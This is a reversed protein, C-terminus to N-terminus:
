AHFRFGRPRTFGPLAVGDIDAFAELAFGGTTRVGTALRSVGNEIVGAAVRGGVRVQAVLADPLHEVAGDVVLVDYPAHDAAGTALDGEVVTVNGIGDLNAKASAALAADSEVAVVSKALRALVAATYGGAAGVLLVTDGPEIGAATLLRGTALPANQERGRVLPLPRDSYAIAPDATGVFRERPVEAMAAVVRPDNVASTRLQSAVMARRAADASATPYSANATMM